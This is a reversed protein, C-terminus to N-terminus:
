RVCVCVCTIERGEEREGAIGRESIRETYSGVEKKSFCLGQSYLLKILHCGTHLSPIKTFATFMDGAFTPLEATDTGSTSWTQKRVLPGFAHQLYTPWRQSM